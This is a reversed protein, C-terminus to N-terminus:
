QIRANRMNNLEAARQLAAEESVELSAQSMDYTDIIQYYVVGRRKLPKIIFENRRHTKMYAIVNETKM